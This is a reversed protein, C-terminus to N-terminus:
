DPRGGALLKATLNDRLEQSLFHPESQPPEFGAAQFATALEAVLNKAKVPGFAVLVRRQSKPTADTKVDEGGQLAIIGSSM